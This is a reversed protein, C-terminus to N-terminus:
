YIKKIVEELTTREAPRRNVLRGTTQIEGLRHLGWEDAQEHTLFDRSEYPFGVKRIQARWSGNPRQAITLGKATSAM